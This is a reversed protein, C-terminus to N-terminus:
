KGLTSAVSKQWGLDSTRRILLRNIIERYPSGEPLAISYSQPSFTEPLVSLESDPFDNKISYELMPADHVLVEIKKDKVAQLGDKVNQFEKADACGANKVYYHGTSKNQVYGVKYKRLQDPSIDNGERKNDNLKATVIGTFLALLIMGALMWVMGFVRGICGVPYKDGYGAAITVVAWWIGSGIGRIIGGGFHGSNCRFELLWILVGAISFAILLPFVGKKVIDWVMERIVESTPKPLVAMALGATYYPFTFDVKAEREENITIAAIGAQVRGSQVESLVGSVTVADHFVTECNLEPDAAIEKWLKISIGTWDDQEPMSFPAAPKTAVHIIRKGSASITTELQTATTEAARPKM